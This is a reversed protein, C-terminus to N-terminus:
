AIAPGAPAAAPLAIPPALRLPFIVKFFATVSAAPPKATALPRWPM